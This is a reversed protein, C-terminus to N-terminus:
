KKNEDSEKKPPSSSNLGRKSSSINPHKLTDSTDKTLSKKSNQQKAIKPEKSKAREIQEKKKKTDELEKKLIENAQEEMLLYEKVKDVTLDAINEPLDVPTEELTLSVQDEKNNGM